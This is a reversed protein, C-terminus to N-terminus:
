YLLISPLLQPQQQWPHLYFHLPWLFCTLMYTLYELLM